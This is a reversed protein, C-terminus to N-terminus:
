NYSATFFPRINKTRDPWIGYVLGTMKKTIRTNRILSQQVRYSFPQKSEMDWNAAYKASKIKTPFFLQALCGVLGINGPCRLHIHDSAKMAKFIRYANILVVGIARISNKINTCDFEILEFTKHVKFSVESKLLNRDEKWVPCCFFIQDTNKAWLQMETEYPKYMFWGKDTYILPASSIVTVRKMSFMDMQAM